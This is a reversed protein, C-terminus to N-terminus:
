RKGMNMLLLLAIGSGALLMWNTEVFSTVDYGGVVVDGNSTVVQAANSVGATTSGNANATSNANINLPPATTTAPATYTPTTPPPNYAVYPTTNVIPVPVTGAPTNTPMTVNIPTVVPVPDNSVKLTPGSVPATLAAAPPPPSLQQPTAPWQALVQSWPMCQIGTPTSILYSGTNNGSANGSAPDCWGAISYGTPLSVAGTSDGMGRRGRNFGSLAQVGCNCGKLM